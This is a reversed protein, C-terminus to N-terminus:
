ASLPLNVPVTRPPQAIVEGWLPRLQQYLYAAIPEIDRASAVTAWTVHMGRATHFLADRRRQDLEHKLLGRGVYLVAPARRPDGNRWIIFVGYGEILDPDIEHLSHWTHDERKHWQLQM